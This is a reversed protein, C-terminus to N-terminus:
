QAILGGAPFTRGYRTSDVDWAIIFSGDALVLIETGTTPTTTMNIRTQPGVATGDAGYRRAYITGGPVGNFPEDWAVVSGGDPLGAIALLARNPTGLSSAVQAPLAVGAATIYQVFVPQNQVQWALAVRGGALPTMSGRPGAGTHWSGGAVQEPALPAGDAGYARAGGTTGTSKGWSVVYGGSTTGIVDLFGDGDTTVQQAPGVPDGNADFRRTYVGHDAAGGPASQQLAWVVVYGGGKLPAMQPVAAPNLQDTVATLAVAYPAGIPQGAATVAGTWLQYSNVPSTGLSVIWARAYGGGELVTASGMTGPIAITVPGGMQSGDPAYRRLVNSGVNVFQGSVAGGWPLEFVPSGLPAGVLQEPGSSPVVGPSTPTGPGVANFTVEDLYAFGTGANKWLFVLAKTANAPATVGAQVTAYTTSRFVVNQVQLGVGADNVFLVGLYGTEGATSVKALASLRYQSGAVVGRIQQGFGGAGQGGAQGAATGVAAQATSTGAPPWPDWRAFGEEFGGNTVLNGASAAGPAVDATVALSIDDVSALGSGTNKWVYVLARAANPPALVDLSAATYTTVLVANQTLPAGSQDVFNVGVYVTDSATSVKAQATLRYTSGPVIGGVEQGAGGAGTGVSLASTGSSAQGAVASANGWNSWGALGNEFGGNVVMNGLAPPAAAAVVAAVVSQQALAFAAVQDPQAAAVTPAPDGGGAGGGGCGAIAVAVAVAGGASRLSRTFKQATSVCGQRATRSTTGTRALWSKLQQATRGQTGLSQPAAQEFGTSSM